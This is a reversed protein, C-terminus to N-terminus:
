EDQFNQYSQTKTAVPAILLVITNRIITAILQAQVLHSCQNGLNQYLTIQQIPM